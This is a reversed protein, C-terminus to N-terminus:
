RNTGGRGSSVGAVKRQWVEFPGFRSDLTYGNEVTPRMAQWMEEYYPNRTDRARMVVIDPPSTQLEGVVTTVMSKLFMGPFMPLYRGWPKVGAMAFILPGMSDLMAVDRPAAGIVALHDALAVLEGTYAALAPDVGCIDNPNQLLCLGNAEPGTFATKALSPYAQFGPHAVLMALAVTMAAWPLVRALSPLRGSLGPVPGGWRFLVPASAVLIAFPVAPRFLNHPNSRGVFYLLTLFGYIAITGLLVAEATLRRRVFLVVAYGSVTLYTAIVLAFFILVRRAEVSTLPLLTAGARTLRLNELWGEWFARDLLSWRSAVGLGVTLVTLGAGAAGAGIRLLRRGTGPELRFLCAWFFAAAMGLYIGTDTQFLVALGLVMGGAVLWGAKRTRLYALCSLFFWIDFMWRLVTASPFRWMIFASSYSGFLQLLFALATGAVALQWRRTLVRIFAYVATFYLCGYIVETRIFHGYSVTRVFPLKTLAVAWGMGYYVHVDRGLALGNRFAAAPGFVFFDIHLFEEGAFANGALLRWGPMYVVLVIALPVILDAPRLRLRALPPAPLGSAEAARAPALVWAAVALAGALACFVVLESLRIRPGAPLRARANSFTAVAALTAAGAGAIAGGARLLTAPVSRGDGAPRRGGALGLLAVFALFAAGFFLYLSVDHEPQVNIAGPSTLIDLPKSPPGWLLVSGLLAVIAAGAALALSPLVQLVEPGQSRRPAVEGPPLDLQTGSM